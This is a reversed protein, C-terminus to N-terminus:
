GHWKKFFTECSTHLSTIGASMVIECARDLHAHQQIKTVAELVEANEHKVAAQFTDPNLEKM